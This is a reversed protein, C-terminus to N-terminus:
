IEKRIVNDKAGASDKAVPMKERLVKNLGKNVKNLAELAVSKNGVTGIWTSDYHKEVFKGNYIYRDGKVDIIKVPVTAIIEIGQTFVSFKEKRQFPELTLCLIYDFGEDAVVDMIDRREAMSLDTMGKDALKQIVADSRSVNFKGSLEKDLNQLICDNIADDYTTNANNAYIIAVRPMEAAMAASLATLMLALTLFLIKVPSFNKM